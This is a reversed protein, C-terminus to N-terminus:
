WYVLVVAATDVGSVMRVSSMWDDIAPESYDDGAQVFQGHTTFDTAQIAQGPRTCAVIMAGRTLGTPLDGLIKFSRPMATPLRDALLAAATMVLTRVVGGTAAGPITISYRQVNSTVNPALSSM